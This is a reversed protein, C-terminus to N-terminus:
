KSVKKIFIQKPYGKKLLDERHKYAADKTQFNGTTYRYFKDEDNYLIKIDNIYKFYSADVPKHLAIVQVTYFLVESDQVNKDGEDSVKMDKVLISSDVVSVVPINSLNIKEYVVPEPATTDKLLTMDLSITSELFNPVILTDIYQSLYGEGSYLIRLLGAGVNTNYIGTEADPKCRYLTDGTVKNIIKVSANKVASILTDNVSFKGTIAYPRESEGKKMDLYFIDKKKYGSTISYYANLGN